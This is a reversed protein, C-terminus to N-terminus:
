HLKLLEERPFAPQPKEEGGGDARVPPPAALSPMWPPLRYSVPEPEEPRTAIGMDLLPGEPEDPLEGLPLRMRMRQGVSSGAQWATRASGLLAAEEDPSLTVFAVRAPRAAPAAGAKFDIAERPFTAVIAAPLALVAASSFLEHRFSRM